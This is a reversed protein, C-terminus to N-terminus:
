GLPEIEIEDGKATGTAAATGAPLELVSHATLCASLRWPRVAHRVKRVRKKKDLYVLVIAFRMFFTHISECPLIWLGDGPDLKKHRLLGVNRKASTDAIAAADALITNRTLNRILIRSNSDAKAM